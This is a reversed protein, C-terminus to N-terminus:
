QLQMQLPNNLHILHIFLDHGALHVNGIKRIWILSSQRFHSSTSLKSILQDSRCVFIVLARGWSFSWLADDYYMFLPPLTATSHVESIHMGEAQVQIPNKTFLPQFHHFRTVNFNGNVKLFSKILFWFFIDSIRYEAHTHAM